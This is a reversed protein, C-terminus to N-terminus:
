EGDTHTHTSCLHATLTYDTYVLVIQLNTSVWVTSVASQLRSVPTQRTSIIHLTDLSDVRTATRRLEYRIHVRAALGTHNNQIFQNTDSSM